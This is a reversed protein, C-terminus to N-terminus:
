SLPFLTFGMGSGEKDEGGKNDNNYGEGDEPEFEMGDELAKGMFLLVAKPVTHSCFAQAVDYDLDFSKEIADAQERDNDEMNPLKPTSHM